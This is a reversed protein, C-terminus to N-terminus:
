HYDVIEVEKPGGEWRFVIRWQDNIRISYYGRLIGRLTELRNGPPSRLDTLLVAANLYQLKRQASSRLETPFRRSAGTLRDYFIDSALQHKFSRIM